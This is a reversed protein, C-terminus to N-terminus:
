RSKLSKSNNDKGQENTSSNLKVKDENKINNVGYPIAIIVTITVMIAVGIKLITGITIGKKKNEKEM